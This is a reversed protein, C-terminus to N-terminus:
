SWDSPAITATLTTACNNATGNKKLRTDFSYNNLM